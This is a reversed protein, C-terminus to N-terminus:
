AAGAWLDSKAPVAPAEDEWRRANLWSAPHPIFQGGDKTWQESRAQQSVALLIRALLAGDPATKQWAKVAQMKATKRPYAVWFADFGSAGASASTAITKQKQKQKQKPQNPQAHQPETSDTSDTSHAAKRKHWYQRHYERRDEERKLERYHKYNVVRWGWTRGEALPVIRRGEETPTRSDPDPKILEAIGREIIELPITTRRSIAAATMDVNGDMDALVLLQQFAVLAEWPGRTCLTGDYIQAFVKAYM